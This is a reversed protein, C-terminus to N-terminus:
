NSELNEQYYKEFFLNVGKVITSLKSENNTYDSVFKIYTADDFIFKNLRIIFSHQIWKGSITPSSTICVAFRKLEIIKNLVKDISLLNTHFDMSMLELMHGNDNVYFNFDKDTPTTNKYGLFEACKKNFEKVNIEM